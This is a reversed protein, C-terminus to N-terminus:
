TGSSPGSGFPESLRCEVINIEYINNVQVNDITTFIRQDQNSIDICDIKM